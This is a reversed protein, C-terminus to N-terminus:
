GAHMGRGSGVLRVPLKYGVDLAHGVDGRDLRAEPTLSPAVKQDQEIDLRADEFRCSLRMENSISYPKVLTQLNFWARQREDLAM